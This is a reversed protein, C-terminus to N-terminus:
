RPPTLTRLAAMITRTAGAQDHVYDLVTDQLRLRAADNNWLYTFAAELEAGNHVPFAGKIEVLAVAEQFKSYAPGFFM